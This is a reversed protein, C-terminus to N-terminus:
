RLTNKISLFPQTAESRKQNEISNNIMDSIPQIIKNTSYSSAFQQLALRLAEPTDKEQV